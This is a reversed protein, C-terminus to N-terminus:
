AASESLRDEGKGLAAAVLEAAALANCADDADIYEDKEAAGVADLTEGVLSVDGEALDGLWDSAADNDFSGHGWAGM